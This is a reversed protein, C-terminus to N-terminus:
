QRRPEPSRPVIVATSCTGTRSPSKVQGSSCGRSRPLRQRPQPVCTNGLWPDQGRHV